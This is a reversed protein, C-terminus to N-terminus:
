QLQASRRGDKDSDRVAESLKANYPHPRSDDNIVSETGDYQVRALRCDKLRASPLRGKFILDKLERHRLITM